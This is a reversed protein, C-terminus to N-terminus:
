ELVERNAWLWAPFREFAALVQQEPQDPLLNWVHRNIAFADPWDAEVAVGAFGLESILRRTLRERARYFVSTGHTSEGILVLSKSRAAEFIADFDQDTGNLPLAQETITAVLAIDDSNMSAGHYTSQQLSHGVSFAA